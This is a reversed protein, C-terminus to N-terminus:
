GVFFRRAAPTNRGYVFAIVFSRVVNPLKISCLILQDSKKFVVVSVSPHWVVWIRGLASFSYNNDSRWGPLTSALVSSANDESVHTELFSGVLLSNSAVWSRVM